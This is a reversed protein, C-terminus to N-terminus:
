PCDQTEGSVDDPYLRAFKRNVTFKSDVINKAYMGDTRLDHPHKLNFEVFHQINERSKCRQLDQLMCRYYEEKNVTDAIEPLIQGDSVDAEETLNITVGDNVAAVSIALDVVTAGQRATRETVDYRTNAAVAKSGGAQHQGSAVKAVTQIGSEATATCRKKM